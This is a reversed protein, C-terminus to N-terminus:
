KVVSAAFGWSSGILARVGLGVRESVDYQELNRNRVNIAETKTHVVRADAYQAGADLAAQVAQSAEDFM